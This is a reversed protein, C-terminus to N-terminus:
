LAGEPESLAAIKAMLAGEDVPKLMCEKAGMRLAWVRDTLQSKGTCVIVPIHATEPAKTLARTAQFGNIGPMIIDMLVLDPLENKVRELAEEGSEAQSVVFGNRTLMGSLFFRDTASDDVIMIKKM